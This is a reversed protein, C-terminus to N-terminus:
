ESDIKYIRDILSSFEDRVNHTIMIITLNKDELLSKEIQVANEKDLSSTGEDILFVSKMNYLARALSIRQIQGGSMELFNDDIITDLHDPLNNIFSTLHSKELVKEMKKREYSAAMCINGKLSTNFLYNSQSVAVINEKLLQSPIESYEMGDWSLSGEYNKLSGILMNLLTTKGSGSDGVLIYKENKRFIMNPFSITKNPYKYKLYRIEIKDNLESLISSKKQIKKEELEYKELISSSSIIETNITSLTSIASFFQSSLNGVSIISGFSVLNQFALFGAAGIMIFQSMINISTIAVGIIASVKAQKIRAHEVNESLLTVTTNLMELSGYNNLIHIGKIWNTMDKTMKENNKSVNLAAHTLQNSFYKPIYILLFSFSINLILFLPHFYILTVGSILATSISSIFSFYSKVGAEISLIDTTVMNIFASSPFMGESEIVSNQSKRIALTRLYTSNSQIFHQIRMTSIYSLSLTLFWLLISFTIYLIFRSINKELLINLGTALTLSSMAQSFSQVSVLLFILYSKKKDRKILTSIKM